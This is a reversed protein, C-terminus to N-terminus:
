MHYEGRMAVIKWVSQKTTNFESFDLDEFKSPDIEYLVALAVNVPKHMTHEITAKACNKFFRVRMEKHLQFYSAIRSCVSVYVNSMNIANHSEPKSPNRPPDTEFLWQDCFDGFCNDRSVIGCDMCVTDGSSYDVISFSACECM